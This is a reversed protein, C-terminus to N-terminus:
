VHLEYELSSCQVKEISALTPPNKVIALIFSKINKKTGTLDIVVSGGANNVWGCIQFEKAKNYVFPRFGVGQVIGYINLM